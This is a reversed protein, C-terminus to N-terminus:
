ERVEPLIVIGGTDGDTDNEAQKEGWLMPCRNKLWYTQANLNPPVNQEEDVVELHEEEVKKGNEDYYSNKLKYAKKVTVTYGMASKLLADQVMLDAAAKDCDTAEKFDPYLRKYKKYTGLSIGLSLAAEKESAGNIRIAKIYPLLHKIDEYKKSM